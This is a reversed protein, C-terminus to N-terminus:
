STTPNPFNIGAYIEALAFHCAISELFLEGDLGDVETHFWGGDQQRSDIELHPRDQAILVLDKLSSVNTRYRLSKEGRDYGETSRSLVEVIITPNVLVDRRDDHFIPEGCVIMLDPYAFLGSPSTRVKMNPSYGQCKQRDIKQGVAGALNFCIISHEPSEGATAYVLGDLYEHRVESPRELALYEEPSFVPSQRWSM